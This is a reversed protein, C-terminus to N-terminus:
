PGLLDEITDAETIKLSHLKLITQVEQLGNALCTTMGNGCCAESKLISTCFPALRVMSNKQLTNLLETKFVAM